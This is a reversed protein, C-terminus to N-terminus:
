LAKDEKVGGKGSVEAAEVAKKDDDAGAGGFLSAAKFPRKLDGKAEKGFVHIQVVKQELASKLPMVSQMLLPNTYKMYLHMFGMMGIGQLWGKLASNIQDMDYKHVTTTILKGESAGSFAAPPEMYKITTMDKKKNILERTYVYLGLIILSSTVYVVRVTNLIKEDELDLRKSVQMMILMIALQSILPNM